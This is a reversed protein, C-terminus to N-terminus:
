YLLAQSSMANAVAAGLLLAGAGVVPIWWTKFPRLWGAIVLGVCGIVVVASFIAYGTGAWYLLTFDCRSECHPVEIGRFWVLFTTSMAVLALLLSLTM